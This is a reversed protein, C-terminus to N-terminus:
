GPVSGGAVQGAYHRRPSPHVLGTLKAKEPFKSFVGDLIGSKGVPMCNILRDRLEKQSSDDHWTEAFKQLIGATTKFSEM